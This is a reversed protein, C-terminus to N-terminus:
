YRGPRELECSRGERRERGDGLGMRGGGPGICVESANFEGQTWSMVFLANPVAMALESERCPIRHLAWM